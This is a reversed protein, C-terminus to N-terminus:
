SIDVLLPLRIIRIGAESKLALAGRESLIPFYRGLERTWFATRGPRIPNEALWTITAKPFRLLALELKNYVDGASSLQKATAAISSVPGLVLAVERLTPGHASELIDIVWPLFHSDKPVCLALSRLRSWDSSQALSRWSDNSRHGVLPYILVFVVSAAPHTNLFLVRAVGM